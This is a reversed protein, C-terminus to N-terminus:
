LLLLDETSTSSFKRNAIDETVLHFCDNRGMDPNSSNLENKCIQKRFFAWRFHFHDEQKFSHLLM